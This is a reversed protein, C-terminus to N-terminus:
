ADDRAMPQGKISGTLCCTKHSPGHMCPTCAGRRVKKRRTMGPLELTDLQPLTSMTFLSAANGGHKKLTNAAPMNKAKLLSAPGHTKTPSGVGRPQALSPLWV